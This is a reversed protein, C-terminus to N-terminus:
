EIEKHQDPYWAPSCPIFMVLKGKWFYKEGPELFILDGKSIKIETGETSIIGQGDIIYALEKCVTNVARGKEPYRGDLEIIAGNIDKDGLPYEIATCSESNKFIKTQNKHIIKM